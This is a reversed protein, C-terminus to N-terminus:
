FIFYFKFFFFLWLLMIWFLWTFGTACHEVTTLEWSNGHNKCTRSRWNRWKELKNRWIWTKNHSSLTQGFPSAKLNTMLGPFVPSFLLSDWIHLFFCGTLLLTVEHKPQITWTFPFLRESLPTSPVERTTWHNLSWVAPAKSEIGLWPVLIGCAVCHSWCVCVCVCM